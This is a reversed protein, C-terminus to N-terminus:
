ERKQNRQSRKHGKQTETKKTSERKPPTRQNRKNGNRNENIENM